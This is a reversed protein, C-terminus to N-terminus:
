GARRLAEVPFAGRCPKSLLELLVIARSEGDPMQYIGELGSFPGQTVVVRQGPEFLKRPATAQHQFADIWGPPLKAPVGGFEVLRSVGRTSRLVSWKADTAGLEIFLYRAFLPENALVRKGRRIREAQLTPLVCRLGQNRLHAEARFEQRPKTQVVYWSDGTVPSQHNSMWWGRRKV